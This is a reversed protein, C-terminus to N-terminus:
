SEGTSTREVSYKARELDFVVAGDEVVVATSSGTFFCGLTSALTQSTLGLTKAPCGVPQRHRIFLPISDNLRRIMSDHTISLSQRKREIILNESSEIM